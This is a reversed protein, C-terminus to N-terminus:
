LGLFRPWASRASMKFMKTLDVSFNKPAKSFFKLEFFSFSIVSLIINSYESFVKNKLPFKKKWLSRSLKRHMKRVHELYRCPEDSRARWTLLFIPAAHCVLSLYDVFFPAHFIKMFNMHESIEILTSGTYVTGLHLIYWRNMLRYLLSFIDYSMRQLHTLVAMFHDKSRM